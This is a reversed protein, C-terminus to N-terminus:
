CSKMYNIPSHRSMQYLARRNLLIVQFRTEQSAYRQLECALICVREKHGANWSRRKVCLLLPNATAATANM